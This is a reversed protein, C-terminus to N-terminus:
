ERTVARYFRHSFNSAQADRYETLESTLTVSALAQWIGLDNSAQLEVVANLPGSIRIVVMDADLIADLSVITSDSELLVLEAEESAESSFANSVLVRYAGANEVAVNRLALLANTAAPIDVGNFQWQFALPATGTATVSLTVNTGALASQNQPDALIAVPMNVGVLAAASLTAGASNSVSVEYAGAMAPQLDALMLNSNTAGTIDQAQFRWQYALPEAGSATISLTITAGTLANTSQPQVVIQPPIGVTLNASPSTVSGAPNTIAVHYDGADAAQLNPLLLAANTAGVVDRDNFRWQYQLPLTGSAKIFFGVGSGPNASQSEPQKLIVPPVTILLTAIPSTIVGAANRITVTYNGFDTLQVDPVSLTANTAGALERGNLQWQYALPAAGSATRTPALRWARPM